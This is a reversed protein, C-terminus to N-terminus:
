YGKNTLKEKSLLIKTVRSIYLINHIFKNKGFCSIEKGVLMTIINATSGISKVYLKCSIIDSIYASNRIVHQCTLSFFFNM